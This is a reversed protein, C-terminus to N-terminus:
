GLNALRKALEDAKVDLAGAGPIPQLAILCGRAVAWPLTSARFDAFPDATVAQGGIQQQHREADARAAFIAIRPAPNGRVAGAELWPGGDGSVVFMQGQAAIGALYGALAETKLRLALDAPDVEAEIPDSVWDTGALGRSAGLGPLIDAAFSALSIEQLADDGTLAEAWRKAEIPSSWFLQVTRGPIKQSPVSASEEDALTLVRSEAVARRVFRDRQALEPIRPMHLM